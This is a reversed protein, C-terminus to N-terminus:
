KKTVFFPDDRLDSHIGFPHFQPDLREERRSRYGNDSQRLCYARRGLALDIVGGNFQEGM